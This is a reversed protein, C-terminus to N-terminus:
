EDDVEDVALSELMDIGCFSKKNVIGNEVMKVVTTMSRGYQHVDSVTCIPRQRARERVELHISTSGCISVDSPLQDQDASDVLLKEITM